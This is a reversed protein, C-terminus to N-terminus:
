LKRSINGAVLVKPVSPIDKFATHIETLTRMPFQRSFFPLEQELDRSLEPFKQVVSENYVGKCLMDTINAYAALDTSTFYKDMSGIAKDLVCFFEPRYLEEITSPSASADSGGVRKPIKRRRPLALPELNMKEIDEEAKSVISRFATDTRLERLEIKVAEAASLMRDVTQKSGQLSKNFGELCQLIPLAAVLGLLCKGQVFNNALGSARAATDTGFTSSAKHLATLINEYNDLVSLVASKRTLWQTPCIPKLSIPSPLTEM